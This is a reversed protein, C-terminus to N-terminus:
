EVRCTGQAACNLKVAVIRRNLRDGVYVAEEGLAVAHPWGLAVAPGASDQNGYTGFWTILNGNTDLVGVRFQAVDAFFSRGFDDVDFRPSECLCVDPTGKTRWSPVNSAGFYTWQAGKVETANGYGYSVPTGGIGSRIEGGQPGFKVISGYMLTYWDLENSNMGYKWPRGLDLDALAKPVRIGAPRVGVALYINGAPDLRVSNISRIQSDILKEAIPRGDPGFVALANADEADGPSQKEKPKQWLVYLRGGRDVTIGRGRLRPSGLDAIQAGAEFPVPTLAGRLRGEAEAVKLDFRSAAAVPYSHYIYFRGDGGFAAINGSGGLRPMAVEIPRGTRADFFAASSPGQSTYLHQTSRDLSLDTVAGVGAVRGQRGVDVPEGFGSERDEIRLLAFHAYYGQPSGVWIVPPDASGDLAMVATYDRHKFSPLTLEAAPRDAKWSAFKQLRNVQAGGLVYLAGTRPHVEVREPREVALAGLFAGDPRFVAV